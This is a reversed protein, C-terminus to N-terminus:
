KVIRASLEITIISIPPVTLLPKKLHYEQQAMTTSSFSDASLETVTASDFHIGSLSVQAAKEAHKNIIYLLVKDTQPDYGSLASLTPLPQEVDSGLPWCHNCYGPMPKIQQYETTQVQTSLLQAGALAATMQFALGNPRIEQTAQDM